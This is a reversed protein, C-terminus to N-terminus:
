KNTLLENIARQTEEEQEELTPKTLDWNFNTSEIDDEFKFFAVGNSINDLSIFEVYKSRDIKNSLSLLVRDLTLDYYIRITEDINTYRCEEEYDWGKNDIIIKIAEEYSKASPNNALIIAKRNEEQIEKITM